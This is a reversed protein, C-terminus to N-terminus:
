RTSATTAPCHGRSPPQSRTKLVSPAASISTCPGEGSPLPFWCPPALLGQWREAGPAAGASPARPSTRSLRNGQYSAKGLGLGPSAGPPPLQLDAPLCHWSHAATGPLRALQRLHCLSLHHWCSLGARTCSPHPSKERAEMTERESAIVSVATDPDCSQPAGHRRM